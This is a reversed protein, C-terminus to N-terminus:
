QGELEVAATRTLLRVQSVDVDPMLTLEIQFKRLTRGDREFQDSIILNVDRFLPSRNLRSIYQAVQVDTEAMGTLKMNVDYVRPQLGPDEKKEEERRARRQEFATKAPPPAVIRRKSELTFDILSVGAPLANTLEALLFTRPVKELLSATLEAQQAMQRQKEQMRQVQQIRRAAEAYEREVAAHEAEIQRVARESITFAAGIAVMVVVFLGACILNSRRQAKRELYDEPLFSLQNSVNM